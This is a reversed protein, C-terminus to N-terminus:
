EAPIDEVYPPECPEEVEADQQAAMSPLPAPPASVLTSGRGSTARAAECPADAHSLLELGRLTDWREWVDPIV